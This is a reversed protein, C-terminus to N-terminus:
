MFKERFTELEQNTGLIFLRITADLSAHAQPNLEIGQGGRKWGLVLVGTESRINLEALTKGMLRPHNACPIDELHLDPNGEGSILDIFEMLTPRTLQNAMRKGGILNPVIVQNAGARKLKPISNEHSARAVIKLRPNMGRATLTIYVNEADTSLSSILGRAAHINAQELVDEHTADGKIALIDHHLRFEDIVEQDAEVIVFSHQQRMLEMAAERGNRGLGCIIYHNHLKSVKRNIQYVNFVHRIEGEVVFTTITTIAYVFTGASLVILMVSFLKGNASLDRVTGFGVTSMTIVTMYIADVLSYGEILTFGSVGLVSVVALLLLATYIRRLSTNWDM